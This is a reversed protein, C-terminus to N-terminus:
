SSAGERLQTWTRRLAELSALEKANTPVAVMHMWEESVPYVRGCQRM